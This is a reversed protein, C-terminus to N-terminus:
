LPNKLSRMTKGRNSINKVGLHANNLYGKVQEMFAEDTIVLLEKEYKATSDPDEYIFDAEVLRELLERVEQSNEREAVALEIFTDDLFARKGIQLYEKNISHFEAYGKEHRLELMLRTLEERRKIFGPDKTYDYSPDTQSKYFYFSLHEFLFQNYCLEELNWQKEEKACSNLTETTGFVKLKTEAWWNTIRARFKNYSPNETIPLFVLTATGGIFTFGITYKIFKRLTMGKSLEESTKQVVRGRVVKDFSQTQGYAFRSRAKVKSYKTKFLARFEARLERKQIFNIADSRAILKQDKLLKESETLIQIQEKTLSSEPIDALTDRLYQIRKGMEQHELITGHVISNFRIDDYINKSFTDDVLKEQKDFFLKVNDKQTFKKNKYVIEGNELFPLKISVTKGASFDKHKLKRKKLFSKLAKVQLSAEVGKNINEELVSYYSKYISLWQNAEGVAQAFKASQPNVLTDIVGFTDFHKDYFQYYTSVYSTSNFAHLKNQVVERAESFGKMTGFEALANDHSKFYVDYIGNFDGEDLLKNVEHRRKVRGKLENSIKALQIDCPKEASVPLVFSIALLFSVIRM